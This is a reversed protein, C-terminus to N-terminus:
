GYSAGELFNASRSKDSYRGELIKVYKEKSGFIFDFDVKWGRDNKGLLFKSQRIMKLVRDFDFEKESLRQRIHGSRKDTIKLVTALNNEKAFENWKERISEEVKSEKVKSQTNRVTSIRVSDTESANRVTSIGASDMKSTNRVYSIGNIADYIPKDPPSTKRNKYVDSINEIFNDSWIIKDKWLTEDIAKLESLKSLIILAQEEGVGCYSLYFEWNDRSNCDYYHRETKGLLELTKFWLAYGDNGFQREMIYLTKKHNCFHPFYDVVYKVKRGAM